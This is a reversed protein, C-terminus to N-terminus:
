RTAGRGRTHTVIARWESRGVRSAAAVADRRRPFLGFVASGSGSLRAHTAGARVLARKMRGIEPREAEVAPELENVLGVVPSLLGARSGLPEVPTRRRRPHLAADYWGYADVTPVGFAPVLLVVWQAPLDVLPYVQEGFGLGLATGGVLFFSVDAGLDAAIARQAQPQLGPWFRGLARLMAAADASGGGLGAEMPIRKTLAVALGSPTRRGVAAAARVAARWVLNRTGAPVSRDSCRFEFPGPRTTVTLTDHLDISQFITRLEHLGDSRRGLIRLDLNIKAYARTVTRRRTM